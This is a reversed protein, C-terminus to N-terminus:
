ETYTAACKESEWVTVEHPRVGDPLAASLRDYLYKALNESTPNLTDFPPTENLFKHDLEDMLAKVLRKLDGFDMLMGIPGLREGKVRVRVRWNHGHLNECKGKYERLQHASAFDDEVQLIYM